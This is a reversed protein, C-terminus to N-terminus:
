CGFQCRLNGAGAAASRCVPAAVRRIATAALCLGRTHRREGAFPPGALFRISPLTLASRRALLVEHAAGVAKLEVGAEGKGVGCRQHGIQAVQADAVEVSRWDEGGAGAREVAVVDHVRGAHVGLKTAFRPQALEGSGQAGRPEAQDDIDDRVV